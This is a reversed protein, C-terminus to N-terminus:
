GGIPDWDRYDPGRVPMVDGASTWCSALLQPHTTSMNNRGNEPDEATAPM